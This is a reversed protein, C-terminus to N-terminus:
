HKHHPIHLIKQALLEDKDKFFVKKTANNKHDELAQLLTKKDTYFCRFGEHEFVELARTSISAFIIQEVGLPRLFSAVEHPSHQSTNEVIKIDDGVIAFFKTHGFHKMITSDQSNDKIPVAIM